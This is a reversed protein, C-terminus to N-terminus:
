KLEGFCIKCGQIAKNAAKIIRPLNREHAHVRNLFDTQDVTPISLSELREIEDWYKRSREDM